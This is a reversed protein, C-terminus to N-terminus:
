LFREGFDAVADTISDYQDADSDDDESPLLDVIETLAKRMEEVAHQASEDDAVFRTHVLWGYVGCTIGYPARLCGKELTIRAGYVHEDDLMFLGGEPGKKGITQGDEYPHWKSM